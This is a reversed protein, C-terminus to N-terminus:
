TMVGRALLAERLTTRFPGAARTLAHRAQDIFRTGAGTKVAALAANRDGTSGHELVGLLFDAAENTDIRALARLVSARINPAQSERFIRSLPDFAHEFQLAELTRGARLVIAADDDRLAKRLTVFTRKYLLTQLADLVALRVRRSPDEFLTELPSLVAYHQLQALHDALRARAEVAESGHVDAQSEARLASLRGLLAKRRILELWRRDLMVGACAEAANGNQEWELVDAHWVDTAGGAEPPRPAARASPSPAEFPEDKVDAYRRAALAYHERRSPDLDLLALEEYIRGVRAYQGVNAFSLVAGVLANAIIGCPAHREGHQKAAAKWLEGQRMTYRHSASSMGTSRAYEAAERAFNAAASPEGREEAAAISSDFHELVFQVLHDERLIRICNVLGELVDEFAGGDRGVEVLVQFCDFARERQGISEFHDAAEELLRVCAVTAEHAQAPDNCRRACRALNFRVLAALYADEQETAHVLRSWLSRAGRWDGGHERHVAAAAIRGVGEMERAAEAVLGQAAAVMARDVAPVHPMLSRTRTWAAPDSSAQYAVITLAGRADGRRTLVEELQRLVSAYEPDHLHTQGAAAGLALSAGDLDGRMMALRARERLLEVDDFM